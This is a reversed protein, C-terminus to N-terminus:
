LRSPVHLQFELNRNVDDTKSVQVYGYTVPIM